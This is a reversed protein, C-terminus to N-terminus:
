FKHCKLSRLFFQGFIHTGSSFFCNEVGDEVKPSHCMKPPAPKFRLHGSNSDLLWKYKYPWKGQGEEKDDSDSSSDMARENTHPGYGRDEERGM